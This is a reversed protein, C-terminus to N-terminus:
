GKVKSFDIANPPAKVSVPTSSYQFYLVNRAGQRVELPYPQGTTAIYVASSGKKVEIAPQGRPAAPCGRQGSAGAGQV